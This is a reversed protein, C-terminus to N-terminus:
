ICSVRDLNRKTLFGTSSYYKPEKFLFVERSSNHEYRAKDRRGKSSFGEIKIWGINNIHVAEIEEM